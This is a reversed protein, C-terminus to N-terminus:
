HHRPQGHDSPPPSDDGGGNGDDNGNRRPSPPRNGGRSGNSDGNGSGNGNPPPAGGGGALQQPIRRGRESLLPWTGGGVGKPLQPPGGGSEIPQNIGTGNQREHLPVTVIGEGMPPPTGDGGPATAIIRRRRPTLRLKLLPRDLGVPALQQPDLNLELSTESSSDDKDGEGSPNEIDIKDEPPRKSGNGGKKGGGGGGGTGM